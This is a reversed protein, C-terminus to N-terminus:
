VDDDEKEHYYKWKYGGVTKRKDNCCLCINSQDIKITKEIERSSNWTRIYNGNLDYQNIKKSLKNAIKKNRDGYNCNYKASCWELNDVKNNLKNEDKHNIYKYQNLNDIFTEAVIKHIYKTKCKGNKSLSIMLYNTKKNLGSKLIKGKQLYQNKGNKRIHDLSRIKGKNSVEYLGEYNKISKWVEEKM